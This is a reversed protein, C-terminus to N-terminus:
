RNNKMLETKYRNPWADVIIRQALAFACDRHMALGSISNSELHLDYVVTPGDLNTGCCACIKGEDYIRYHHEPLKDASEYFSM